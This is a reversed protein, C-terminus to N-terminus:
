GEEFITGTSVMIYLKNEADCVESNGFTASFFALLIVDFQPKTCDASKRGYTYNQNEFSLRWLSPEYIAYDSKLSNLM